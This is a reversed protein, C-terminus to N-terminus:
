REGEEKVAPRKDKTKLFLLQNKKALMLCGALALTMLALVAIMRDMQVPFNYFGGIATKETLEGGAFLSFETAYGNMSFYSVIVLVFILTFVIRNSKM